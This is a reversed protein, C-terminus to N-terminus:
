QNQGYKLKLWHDVSLMGGGYVITVLLMAGYLQHLAIGAGKSLTAYYSVVAVINIGTIAIAAFRTGLGAFLFLPFVLEGFTALYAATEYHLLPVAYEYEFVALNQEWNNYKWMGSSFFVWGVYIRFFLLLFVQLSALMNNTIQAPGQLREMLGM